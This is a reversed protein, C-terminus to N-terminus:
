NNLLEYSVGDYKIVAQELDIKSYNSKKLWEEPIPRNINYLKYDYFRAPIWANGHMYLVHDAIAEKDEKFIAKM